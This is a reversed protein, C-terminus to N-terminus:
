LGSPVLISHERSNSSQPPGNNSQFPKNNNSQSPPLNLEGSTREIVSHGEQGEQESPKSPEVYILMAVLQQANISKPLALQTYDAITRNYTHVAAMFQRRQLRLNEHARLLESGNSQVPRQRSVQQCRSTASEVAEALRVLQQHQNGLLGHLQWAFESPRNQFIQDYRTDYVGCHPHDAPVPLGEDAITMQPRIDSTLQQLKYQAVLAARRTMHAHDQNEAFVQQWGVGPTQIGAHLAQLEIRELQVLGDQAIAASLDWYAQIRDTQEHRSLTNTGVEGPGGADGLIDALSRPQGPIRNKHSTTFISRLLQGPSRQPIPAEEEVAEEELTGAAPPSTSLQPPEAPLIGQAALAEDPKNKQLAAPPLESEALACQQPLGFLLGLGFIWPVLKWLLLRRM